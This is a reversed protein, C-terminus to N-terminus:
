TMKYLKTYIVRLILMQPEFARMHTKGFAEENVFWSTKEGFLKNVLATPLQDNKLDFIEHM